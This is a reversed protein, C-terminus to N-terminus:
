EMESNCHIILYKELNEETFNFRRDNLIYKYVSFSREVDVSTIPAFKFKSLILPDDIELHESSDGRLIKNIKRLTALGQNKDIIERFKFKLIEGSSGPICNVNQEFKDILECSDNLSLNKNELSKIINVIFPLNAKIFAM